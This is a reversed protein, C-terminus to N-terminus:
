PPSSRPRMQENALSRLLGEQHDLPLYAFVAGARDRPLVRFIAVDDEDPVQILIDAVDAPDFGALVDRVADWQRDRILAQVDPALLPGIGTM